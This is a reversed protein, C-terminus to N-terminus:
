YVVAGIQRSGKEARSAHPMTLEHELDGARNEGNELFNETMEQASRDNTDRHEGSRLSSLDDQDLAPIRMKPGQRTPGHLPSLGQTGSGDSLQQLFRADGLDYQSVQTPRIGVQISVWTKVRYGDQDFRRDRLRELPRVIGCLNQLDAQEGWLLQRELEGM